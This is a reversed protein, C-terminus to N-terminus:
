TNPTIYLYLMFLGFYIFGMTPDVMSLSHFHKPSCSTAWGLMLGYPIMKVILRFLWLFFKVFVEKIKSMMKLWKM